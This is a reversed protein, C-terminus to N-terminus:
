ANLIIIRSVEFFAPDVNLNFSFITLAESNTVQKSTSVVEFFKKLKRCTPVSLKIKFVLIAIYNSYVARGQSHAICNKYQRRNKLVNNTFITAGTRVQHELM